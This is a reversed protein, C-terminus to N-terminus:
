LLRKEKGTNVGIIGAMETYERMRKVNSRPTPVPLLNKLFFGFSRHKHFMSMWYQGFGDLAIPGIINSTTSSKPSLAHLATPNTFLPILCLMRM